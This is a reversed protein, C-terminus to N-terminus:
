RRMQKAILNKQIENTGGAYLSLQGERQWREIPYSKLYARGGLLRMAVVAAEQQMESAFLKAMCSYKQAARDNSDMYHATADVLHTAAALNTSMEALQNSVAQLNFIPANNVQRNLTHEHCFDLMRGTLGVCNAAILLREFGGTIAMLRWAGDIKGVVAEAGVNVDKLTVVCSACGRSAIKPMPKIALGEAGQPVCFISVGKNIQVDTNSRAVVLLIDADAAGTAFWKEGSITWGSSNTRNETPACQTAFTQLNGVDSGAYEETLLFAAFKGGNLIDEALSKHEDESSMNLLLACALNVIVANSLAGSYASCVKVLAVAHKAHGTSEVATLFGAEALDAFVTRVSQTGNDLQEILEEHLNAECWQTLNKIFKDMM